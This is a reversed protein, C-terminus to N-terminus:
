EIKHTAFAIVERREDAYQIRTLLDADRSYQKLHSKLKEKDLTYTLVPISELKCSDLLKLVDVANKNNESHYCGRCIIKFSFMRRINDANQKIYDEASDFRACFKLEIGMQRLKDATEIDNDETDIWLVCTSQRESRPSQPPQAISKTAFGDAWQTGSDIGIFEYVDYMDDTSMVNPFQLAGNTEERRNTYIVIPTHAISSRVTRIVDVATKDETIYWPTIVKFLVGSKTIVSKHQELWSKVNEISDVYYIEYRRVVRLPTNPKEISEILTNNLVDNSSKLWLIVNREEALNVLTTTVHKQETSKPLTPTPVPLYKSHDLPYTKEVLVESGRGMERTPWPLALNLQAVITHIVRSVASDLEADIIPHNKHPWEDRQQLRNRTAQLKTKLGTNYTKFCKSLHATSYAEDIASDIPNLTVRLSRGQQERARLKGMFGEFEVFDNISLSREQVSRETENTIVEFINRALAMAEKMSGPWFHVNMAADGILFMLSTKFTKKGAEIQYSLERSFDMAHRVNIQIPVILNVYKSPIKFFQLGQRIITCVPSHPFHINNDLDINTTTAKIDRLHETLEDYEDKILRINLYGRRSTSSNVLYRTQSVTLICNLAQHLPEDTAAVNEPINYAVGCAYEMGQSVMQINCYRRVLSNAGDAGVVIDFQGKVLYVSQEHLNEPILDVWGSDAFPQILDLLRDEVEEIPINRSTPWVRENIEKFLGKQIYDPMQSIVHDQLTVVQSRRFNGQDAGKWSIKGSQNVYWRGEYITIKAKNGVLMTLNLAFTLGVPGGGAIIVKLPPLDTNTRSM